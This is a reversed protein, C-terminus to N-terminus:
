HGGCSDGGGCTNQVTFPILSGSLLANVAETVNQSNAGYYVTIGVEQFGMLPRMGMGGAILLKVGNQALHNVPGMCGGHEHPVNELTRVSVVENNAVDVLTYCECHGFHADLPAELGGPQKSPMAVTITDM